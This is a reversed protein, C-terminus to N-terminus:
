LYVTSLVDQLFNHYDIVYIADKSAFPKKDAGWPYIVAVYM